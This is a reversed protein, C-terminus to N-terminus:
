NARRASRCGGCAGIRGGARSSYPPPPYQATPRQPVSAQPRVGDGHPQTDAQLRQLQQELQQNRYQLQEINGTLQRIVAELRNIRTM